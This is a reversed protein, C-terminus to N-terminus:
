KKNEIREKAIELAATRPDKNEKKSRDLVIKTNETLKEEVLKFMEDQGGGTYEVYSSIVGGANAVFDPIVLVGKKHFLSETGHSMPINSGQSIIKFDMHKVDKSKVLDPIAATILIDAKIKLIDKGPKVEGPKYKTVTGDNKKVEALKDFDIGGKNYVVGKSDSVAVLKAGAETMHKAVFWGVNGFGEVAFTTGDMFLGIHEMAVKTSHFVGIGTSGLEHPLGGMDKPKGTCAKMSGNAEAFWRMETEAMNMDPAAVYRSPCVPKIAKSFAEVIAKKKDAPIKRDDAVIGSKAGGFPLDAVANKWTMARALRAVEDVSVSPTMRIGGKGPGRSTNDIVTFGKMGVELNEVELVKEPGYDDFKVM